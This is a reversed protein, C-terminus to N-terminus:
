LTSVRSRYGALRAWRGHPLISWTIGSPLNPPLTERTRALVKVEGTDRNWIKPGFGVGLYMLGDNGIEIDLVFQGELGKESEDRPYHTIKRTNIDISSLGGDSGVWLTENNELELAIVRNPNELATASEDLYIRDFEKTERNYFSVGYDTGVWLNGADDEIIENVVNNTLTNVDEQESRYIQYEQGDFRGLGDKGGVWIFGYKDQHITLIEGLFDLTEPIVHKFRIKQPLEAKVSATLLILIVLWAHLIISQLSTSNKLKKISTM